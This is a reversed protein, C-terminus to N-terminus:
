PVRHGTSAHRSMRHALAVLEVEQKKHLKVFHDVHDVIENRVEKVTQQFEDRTVANDKLFEVTEQVTSVDARVDKLEGKVEKLGVTNEVVQKSLDKLNKSLDQVAVLIERNSPEPLSM